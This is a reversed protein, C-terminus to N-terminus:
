HERGVSARCPELRVLQRDLMRRREPGLQEGFYLYYGVLEFVLRRTHDAGRDILRHYQAPDPAPKRFEQAFALRVGDLRRTYVKYDRILATRIRWAAARQAEDAGLQALLYEIGRDMLWSGEFLDTPETYPQSAVVRQEPNLLAHGAQLTPVHDHLYGAYLNVLDTLLKSIRVRDPKPARLAATLEFVWPTAKARLAGMPKLADAGLEHVRKRQADTADWDDLRDDLDDHVKRDVHSLPEEKRCEAEGCGLLWGCLGLCVVLSAVRM